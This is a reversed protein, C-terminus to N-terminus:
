ILGKNIRYKEFEKRLDFNKESYAKILEEAFQKDETKEFVASPSNRAQLILNFKLEKNLNEIFDNEKKDRGLVIKGNKRFHRGINLLEIEEPFIVERNKFLDLLKKAYDRECLLCGGGPMPYNINFKKALKIQKRRGRGQIAFLKERNVLAKKEAETEPLLKASLPRLIKNELGAQKEILLLSDRFQSMPREGLVEGTVIFDAKIKDALIKAHKFLFIRCDRCPNIGFGTGHKPNKIIELFEQFLKGKRCNILHLKFGQMQSFNFSCLEGNEANCCGSGFPFLFMVLEVEINQEELIKAALRSDLGGSFLVLAKAM